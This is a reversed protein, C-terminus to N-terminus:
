EDEDSKNGTAEKSYPDPPLADSSVVIEVRQNTRDRERSWTNPVLRDSDGYCRLILQGPPIGQEVLANFVAMSRDYSLKMAKQVNRMAEPPSCHGRLEVYFRQGKIKKATEAITERASTSLSTSGDDFPILAGLSSFNTPRLTQQSKHRGAVGNADGEGRLERLRQVFQQENPKSSNINIPNGFGERMGIVFDLMAQSPKGPEESPDGSTASEGKPGMNMALLIVFFGMMLAVNDAFSILWEPAGEHEGEAHGGGGHGGGGHGHSGGGEHKEDHNDKHEDAM